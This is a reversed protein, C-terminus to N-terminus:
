PAVTAVPLSSPDSGKFKSTEAGVFDYCKDFVALPLHYSPLFHNAFGDREPLALRLKSSNEIHVLPTTRGEREVLDEPDRALFHILPHLIPTSVRFHWHFYVFFTDPTTRLLDKCGRRGSFPRNLLSRFGSM